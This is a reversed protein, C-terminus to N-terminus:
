RERYWRGRPKRLKRPSRPSKPLTSTGTTITTTVSTSNRKSSQRKGCRSKSTSRLGYSSPSANLKKISAVDNHIDDSSGIIDNDNKVYTMLTGVCEKNKNNDDIVVADSNVHITEQIDFTLSSSELDDSVFISKSSISDVDKDNKIETVDTASTDLSDSSVTFIDSNETKESSSTCLLNNFGDKIISSEYPISVPTTCRKNHNEECFVKSQSTIFVEDTSKQFCNSLDVATKEDNIRDSENEVSSGIGEDKEKKITTVRKKNPWGTRNNKRKKASRALMLAEVKSLKKNDYFDKKGYNFDLDSLASSESVYSEVLSVLDNDKNFSLLADEPINIDVLDDIFADTFTNELERTLYDVNADNKKSESEFDPEEKITDLPCNDNMITTDGNEISDINDNLERDRKRRQQVLSSLIALTSAHERPSKRPRGIIDPFLKKKRTSTKKESKERKNEHVGDIDKHEGDKKRQNLKKPSLKFNQLKNVVNLICCNTKLPPLPGM